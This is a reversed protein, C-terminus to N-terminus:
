LWAWSCVNCLSASTQKCLFASILHVTCALLDCVFAATLLHAQSNPLLPPPPSTAFPPCTSIAPSAQPKQRRMHMHNHDSKTGSKTETCVCVYVGMWVCVYVCADKRVSDDNRYICACVCIYGPTSWTHRSCAQRKYAICTFICAHTNTRTPLCQTRTHSTHALVVQTFRASPQTRTQFGHKVARGDCVSLDIHNLDYGHMQGARGADEGGEATRRGCIGRSRRINDLGCAVSM